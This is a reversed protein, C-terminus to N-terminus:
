ELGIQSILQLNHGDSYDYQSLGEKGVCILTGNYPIVDQMLMNGYQGIMFEGVKPPNKNDFVKLGAPGDAIFLLGNDIGLGRPSTMPFTAMFQPNSPDQMSWIDLQNAWGPCQTQIESSHLTVYAYSGDFIVPDCGFSHLNNSLLEPSASNGISFVAMGNQAGIFLLNDHLFITEAQVLRDTFSFENVFSPRTCENIQYTFLSSPSVVYFYDEKTAFRSISGAKGDSVPIIGSRNISNVVVPAEDPDNVFNNQIVLPIQEDCSYDTRLRAEEVQWDIVVGKQPDAQFGRYTTIRPLVNKVRDLLIPQSLNQVDFILLDSSSDVYLKNCVVSIDYTGPINIFAIKQPSAPQSNDVIHIGRAIDNVFIADEYAFIKGPRLIETANEVKVANEFAIPDMYIPVYHLYTYSMNCSDRICSALLLIPLFYIFKKIPIFKKFFYM